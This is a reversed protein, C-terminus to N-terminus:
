AHADLHAVIAENVIAAHSIPGMHGLGSLWRVTARPLSEGLREVARRETLPSTEGALLLTPAAITAYMERSTTDATLTIVEQFLKWGVARFAVRTEEPLRDWAGAGNWWEVFERLWAEDVGTTPGPQWTRRVRRLSDLADDDEPTQLVGM